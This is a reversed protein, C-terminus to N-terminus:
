VVLFASGGDVPRNRQARFRQRVDSIPFCRALADLMADYNPVDVDDRRQSAVRAEDEVKIFLEPLDLYSVTAARVLSRVPAGAGRVWEFSVPDLLLDKEALITLDWAAERALSLRRDGPIWRLVRDLVNLRSKTAKLAAVQAEIRAPHHLAADEWMCIHTGNAEALGRARSEEPGTASVLRILEDHVQDVIKALQKDGRHDVIVLERRAWSQKRYAAISWTVQEADGKAVMLCSVLFPDQHRPDTGLEIAAQRTQRRLDLDNTSPSSVRNCVAVAASFRFNSLTSFQAVRVNPGTWRPLGPVVGPNASQHGLHNAPKRQRFPTKNEAYYREPIDGDTDVIQGLALDFDRPTFLSLGGTPTHTIEGFYIKGDVLYLDIRVLDFDRGLKEAIDIMEALQPPPLCDPAPPRSTTVALRRWSRDFRGRMARPTGSNLNNTITRVRGRIVTFRFDEPPGGNKTQLLKEAVIRPPIDRYHIEFYSSFFNTRLWSRMTARVAERDLASKDLVIEKWGSGHTPKLIFPVPLADLDVDEARDYVQILPILVHEGVRESVFQRVAYKDATDRYIPDTLTLKRSAIRENFSEPKALHPEYGHKQKFQLRVLEDHQFLAAMGTKPSSHLLNDRSKLLWRNIIDGKSQLLRDIVTEVQDESVIPLDRDSACLNAAFIPTAHGLAQTAIGQQDDTALALVVDNSLLGVCDLVTFAMSKFLGSLLYTGTQVSVDIKRHVGVHRTLRILMDLDPEDRMCVFVCNNVRKSVHWRDDIRKVWTERTFAYREVLDITFLEPHFVLVDADVWIARDYGRDHADRALELRSLNMLARKNDGVRAQYEPGCLSFASDDAFLYDFGQSSTWAEVSRLCREIWAPVNETRFSQIVVTRM